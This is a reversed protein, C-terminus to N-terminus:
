YRFLVGATAGQAWYSSGQYPVVPHLTPAAKPSGGSNPVENVNLKQDIQDGPRLVSSWFLFDYGVFLTVHETLQYNLKLCIEPVFGFQNQSHTGINSPVAYLGGVYTQTKGDTFNIRQGGEIDVTEQTVGFGLKVSGELSFRGLGWEGSAGIQGGYFRNHTAFSDYVTSTDGPTLLNAGVAVPTQVVSNETIRVGENLDLFRFGILGNFQYNCGCWLLAKLNAEAGLLTSDTVVRVTGTAIGPFAAFENTAINDNIDFFPRALVPFNNSSFLANGNNPALFFFSGELSFIGDHDLAVGLTFRGGSSPGDSTNDNGSLLKATGNGLVGPNAATAVDGVVLPPLHMGRTWWLLYEGGAYFTTPAAYSGFVPREAPDFMAAHDDWVQAPAADHMPAPPPAKFPQFRPADPQVTVKGDKDVDIVRPSGSEEPQAAPLTPLTPPTPLVTEVPPLMPFILGQGKIDADFRAPMDGGPQVGRVVRPRPSSSPAAVALPSPQGLSIEQALARPGVGALLATVIAKRIWSM